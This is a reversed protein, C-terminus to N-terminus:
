KVILVSKVRRASDNKASNLMFKLEPLNVYLSTSSGGDFAMAEKVGLTKMFGALEELTMSAQNSVAILLIRDKKIAIASRAYKDLAGASQRIIKDDKKLVFFEKELDFDPFLKPGAQISYTIECEPIVPEDHTSIKYLFHEEGGPALCSLVRLESRNFIKNLYPKLEASEILRKNKQPNLVIEGNKVTYSITEGNEPDFFGANIAVKANTQKGAQEITELFNSVYVDSNEAFYKSDISVVYIGNKYNLLEIEKQTCNISYVALGISLLTGIILVAFFPKIKKM